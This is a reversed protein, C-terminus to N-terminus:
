RWTCASRRSQCSSVSRSMSASVGRRRRQDGDRRRFNGPFADLSARFTPSTLVGLTASALSLVRKAHLDEGVWETVFRHVDEFGMSPRGRM